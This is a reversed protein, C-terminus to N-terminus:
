AIQHVESPARHCRSGLVERGGNIPQAVACVSQFLAHMVVHDLVVAVLGANQLKTACSCFSSACVKSLGKRRRCVQRCSLLVFYLRFLGVSSLM